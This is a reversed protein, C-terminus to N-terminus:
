LVAQKGLPQWSLSCMSWLASVGATVSSLARSPRAKKDAKPYFPSEPITRLDLDPFRYPLRM